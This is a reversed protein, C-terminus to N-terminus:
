ISYGAIHPMPIFNHVSSISVLTGTNNNKIPQLFPIITTIVGINNTSMIKTIRENSGSILDANRGMGSNAIVIDIGGTIGIFEHAAKSCNEEDTVDVKFVYTKANDKRCESAVDELLDVRRAALGLITDQDAYHIALAKGIGTSAGM